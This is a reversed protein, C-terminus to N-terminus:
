SAVASSEIRPRKIWGWQECFCLLAPLVVVAGLMNMFFMFTLLIGMDAQFKLPSVIWTSVAFTLALGTLLVAAGTHKLSAKYAAVLSPRQAWEIQFRSLIYIGYDVGIGVGLAVVPLTVVTLGIELLAMLANALVSVLALPLIVCLTAAWSRVSIWCLIGVALYVYILMPWQAAEVSDNTAAMVGVNGSALRFRVEPEQEPNAACTEASNCGKSELTKSINEIKEVLHNITKARHDTTFIYFPIANCSRNLLGTNTDIYTLTQALSASDQPIVQWKLDGENYGAYIQKSIGPLAMVSHVGVQNGLQWQFKDLRDMVRPDVCGDQITEAIVVLVDVGVAFNNAIFNADVNYRAEPRLEPVGAQQDGITLDKGKWIGAAFLVVAIIVVRGAWPLAAPASLISWFRSGSADYAIAFDRKVQPLILPLLGLQVVIVVAVGLAATIAIERIMAIDIFLLTLFGVADSLLAAGGPILLSKLALQASDLSSKEVRSIKFANIIQVGHSIAIAFVLFPVLISMPDIGFGFVVLLGLQWLVAVLSTTLTIVTLTWSKSYWFLLLGILIVAVIFYLGVLKAGDAIDGMVKAFGIIHVKIDKTEYKARLSELQQAVEQYDLAKGTAPNIEQLEARIMAATENNAVLRGIIGSKGVQEQVIKVSAASGDYNDPVVNGGAFGEETVEIFRVNPTFLSQVQSRNIGPIYFVDQTVKQLSDLFKASYINKDTTSLVILVRNAGGFEDQYKLFTKIYPHSTPLRKTLGADVALHTAQWGLFLTTLLALSLIVFRSKFWAAISKETWSM